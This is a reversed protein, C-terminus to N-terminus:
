VCQMGIFKWSAAAHRLHLRDHSVEVFPQIFYSALLHLPYLIIQRPKVAKMEAEQLYWCYQSYMLPKEGSLRCEELYEMQEVDTGDSVLTMDGDVGAGIYMLMSDALQFLSGDPTGDPKTRMFKDREKVLIEDRLTFGDRGCMDLFYFDLIRHIVNM